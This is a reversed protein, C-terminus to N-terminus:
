SDYLYFNCLESLGQIPEQSPVVEVLHQIGEGDSSVLDGEGGLGGNDVLVLSLTVM